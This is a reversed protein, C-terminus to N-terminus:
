FTFDVQAYQKVSVTSLVSIKRCISSAIRIIARCNKESVFPKTVNAEYSREAEVIFVQGAFGRSRPKAM